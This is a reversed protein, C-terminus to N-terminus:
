RGRQSRRPWGVRIHSTTRVTAAGGEITTLHPPTTRRTNTQPTTRTTDYATHHEEQQTHEASPDVWVSLLLSYRLTLCRYRGFREGRWRGFRAIILCRERRRCLRPSGCVSCLRPTRRAREPQTNAHSRNKKKCMGPHLYTRRLSAQGKCLIAKVLITYQM